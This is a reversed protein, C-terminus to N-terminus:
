IAVHLVQRYANYANCAVVCTMPLIRVSLPICVVRMLPQVWRSTRAAVGPVGVPVRRVGVLGRAVCRRLIAEDLDFPRNTAGMVLIRENPTTLGDWETMVVQGNHTLSLWCRQGGRQMSRARM